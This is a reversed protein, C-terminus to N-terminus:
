NINLIKKYLFTYIFFQIYLFFNLFLKVSSVSTLYGTVYLRVRKSSIPTFNERLVVEEGRAEPGISRRSGTRNLFGAHTRQQKAGGGM